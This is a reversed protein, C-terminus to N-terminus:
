LGFPTKSRIMLLRYPRVETPQFRDVVFDTFDVQPDAPIGPIDGNRVAEAAWNKVDNDSADFFVPDVLEGNTGAWTVNLRAENDNM